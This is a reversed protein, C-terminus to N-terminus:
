QNESYPQGGPQRMAGGGGMMMMPNVPMVGGMGGMGMMGVNGVMMPAMMGGLGGMSGMGGMGGGMGGMGGMAAMPNVMMATPMMMMSGSGGGMMAAPGMPIMAAGMLGGAPVAAQVVQQPRPQQPQQQTQPLRVQSSHKQSSISAVTSKEEALAKEKLVEDVKISVRHYCELYEEYTMDLLSNPKDKGGREQSRSRSRQRGGWDEGRGRGERGGIGGLGSVAAAEEVTTDNQIQQRHEQQGGMVSPMQQPVSVMMPIMGQMMGLISPLPHSHMLCPWYLLLVAHYLIKRLTSFLLRAEGGGPMMGMGHMPMMGGGQMMGAPRMGGGRGGFRGGLM